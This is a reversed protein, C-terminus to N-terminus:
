PVSNKQKSVARQKDISMWTKTTTGAKRGHGAAKPPRSREPLWTTWCRRRCNMNRAACSSLMHLQPVISTLFRIIQESVITGDEIKELSQSTVHQKKRLDRIYPTFGEFDVDYQSSCLTDHSVSAIQGARCSRVFTCVDQAKTRGGRRSIASIAYRM